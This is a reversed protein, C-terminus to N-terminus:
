HKEVFDELIRATIGWIVYRGYEYFRIRSKHERWAYDRGGYIKEFPFDDSMEPIWRVDHTLPKTKQFFLLPVKLIEAVEDRHFLGDYGKVHCLYTWIEQSGAVFISVPSLGEVQQKEIQLEETMERVVAEDPTEGPEVGGGPLCIDGPQQDLSDSRVELIIEEKETLAIAVASRRLIGETIIRPYDTMGFLQKGNM